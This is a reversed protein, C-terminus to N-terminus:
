RGDFAASVKRPPVAPLTSPCPHITTRPFRDSKSRRAGKIVSIIGCIPKEFSQEDAGVLHDLTISRAFDHRQRLRATGPTAVVPMPYAQAYNRTMALLSAVFCDGDIAVSAKERSRQYTPPCPHITAGLARREEIAASSRPEPIMGCMPTDMDSQEGAGELPNPLRLRFSSAVRPRTMAQHAPCRPRCRTV